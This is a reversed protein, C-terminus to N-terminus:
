VVSCVTRDTCATLVRNLPGSSGNAQHQDIEDLRQVRGVDHQIAGDDVGIAEKQSRRLSSGVFAKVRCLFARARSVSGGNAGQGPIGVRDVGSADVEGDLAAPLWVDDHAYVRLILGGLLRALKSDNISKKAFNHNVSTSIALVSENDSINLCLRANAESFHCPGCAGVPCRLM